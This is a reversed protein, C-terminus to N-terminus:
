SEEQIQRHHEQHEMSLTHQKDSLRETRKFLSASGNNHQQYSSKQFTRCQFLFSANGVNAASGNSIAYAPPVEMMM